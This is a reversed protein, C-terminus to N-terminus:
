QVTKIRQGTHPRQDIRMGNLAALKEASFRGLINHNRSALQQWSDGPQWTYLAIRPIGGDRSSDYDGFSRAIRTFDRLHRVFEDRRSWMSLAFAQSNRVFVYSDIMAQSVHPASMRIEAHAYAMDSQRGPDLMRIHRDPFKHRLVEEPSQRKRLEILQLQFYVDQKRLRAQLVTPTNTIVWDAPFKLQFGLEPHLFRRGVVAGQEPSDGYPYGDLASLLAQHGNIVAQGRATHQAAARAIAERIRAETEPHTSFAGHYAEVKDGADKKELAGIDELRKLTKLIGIIATPDYGAQTIYRISLEDAQLEADRGYGRIVAMAVLDSIVSTGIPIPVFISTIM